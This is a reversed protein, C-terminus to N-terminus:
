KPKRGSRAAGAFPNVARVLRINYVSCERIANRVIAEHPVKLSSELTERRLIDTAIKRKEPFRKDFRYVLISTDVLAAVTTCIREQGAETSRAINARSRGTGM